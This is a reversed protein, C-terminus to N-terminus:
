GVSDGGGSQHGTNHISLSSAHSDVGFKRCHSGDCGIKSKEYGEDVLGSGCIRWLRCKESECYKLTHTCMQPKM